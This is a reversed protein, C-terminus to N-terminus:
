FIKIKIADKDCTAYCKLCFNCNSSKIRSWHEDLIKIGMPCVLECERCKKGLCKAPDRGLYILRFRNFLGSIAGTPCLYRCWFRSIYICIILIILLLFIRFFFWPYALFINWINGGVSAFPAQIIATPILSFLTNSQSFPASFIDVFISFQSLERNSDTIVGISVLYGAWLAVFISIFVIGYKIKAFKENTEKSPIYKKVPIKNMIDQIFGFPCIWGCYGRGFIVGYIFLLGITLFPFIAHSFEWQLLEFLNFATTYPAAIPQNVPVPIGLMNPAVADYGLFGGLIITLNGFLILFIFQCSLRSWEILKLRYKKNM